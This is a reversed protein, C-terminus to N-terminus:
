GPQGGDVGPDPEGITMVDEWETRLSWQLTGVYGFVRALRIADQKDIVPVDHIRGTPSIARFRWQPVM